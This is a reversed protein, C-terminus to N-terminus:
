ILQTGLLSYIDDVQILNFLWDITRAPKSSVKKFWIAIYAFVYKEILFIRTAKSIKKFFPQRCAARVWLSSDNCTARRYVTYLKLGKKQVDDRLSIIYDELSALLVSLRDPLSDLDEAYKKDGSSTKGKDSAAKTAKGGKGGKGGKVGAVGGNLPWANV